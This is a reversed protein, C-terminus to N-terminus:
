RKEFLSFFSFPIGVATAGTVSQPVATMVESVAARARNRPAMGFTIPKRSMRMMPQSMAAARALTTEDTRRATLNLSRACRAPRLPKTCCSPSCVSAAPKTAVIALHNTRSITRTLAKSASPNGATEWTSWCSSSHNGFRTTAIIASTMPPRAALPRDRRTRPAAASDPRPRGSRRALTALTATHANAMTTATLWIPMAFSSTFVRNM